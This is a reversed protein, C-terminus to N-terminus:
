ASRSGDSTFYLQTSTVQLSLGIMKLICVDKQYYAVKGNRNKLAKFWLKPANFFIFFYMHSM